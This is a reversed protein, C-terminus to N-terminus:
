ELQTLPVIYSDVHGVLDGAFTFVTCFAFEFLQGSVLTGAGAGTAVVVDGEEVLRDVTLEPSGVFSENEIEGDFAEKGELRQYGHLDWVVDDTLCSLIQAHDSRRFGDFYREVIVKRASLGTPAAPRHRHHAPHHRPRHVDGGGVRSGAPTVRPTIAGLIM